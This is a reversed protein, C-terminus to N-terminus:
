NLPALSSSSLPASSVDKAEKKPKKSKADKKIIKQNEAIPANVIHAAETHEKSPESIQAERNSRLSDSKQANSRVYSIVYCNKAINENDETGNDIVVETVVSDDFKWWTNEEKRYCIYHGSNASDGLHCIIANPQYFAVEGNILPLKITNLVGEINNRRKTTAQQIHDFRFRGISVILKEPAPNSFLRTQSVRTKDLDGDNWKMSIEATLSRDFVDQMTLGGVVEESLPLTLPFLTEERQATRPTGTQEQNTLTETFTIKPAEVKNLLCLLFAAADQQLVAAGEKRIKKVVNNPNTEETNPQPDFEQTSAMVENAMELRLARCDEDPKVKNNLFRSLNPMTAPFPLGLAKLLQLSSNIFCDNGGNALGSRSVRDYLIAEENGDLATEETSSIVSTILAQNHSSSLAASPSSLPSGVRALNEPGNIKSVGKEGIGLKEIAREGEEMPPMMLKPSFDLNSSSSQLQGIPTSIRESLSSKNSSCSVEDRNEAYDGINSYQGVLVSSQNLPIGNNQAFLIQSNLLVISIGLSTLSALKM